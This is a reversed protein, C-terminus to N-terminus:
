KRTNITIISQVKLMDLECGCYNDCYPMCIEVVIKLSVGTLNLSFTEFHADGNTKKNKGYVFFFILSSLFAM